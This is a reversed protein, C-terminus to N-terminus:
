KAEELKITASLLAAVEEGEETKKRIRRRPIPAIGERYLSGV